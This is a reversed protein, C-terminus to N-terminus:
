VSFVMGVRIDSAIEKGDFEMEGCLDNEDDYLNVKVKSFNGRKLCETVKAGTVTKGTKKRWERIKKRIVDVTVVTVSVVTAALAVGVGIAAKSALVTGAVAAGKAALAAVVPIFPLPMIEEKNM